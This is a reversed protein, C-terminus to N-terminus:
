AAKYNTPEADLVKQLWENSEKLNPKIGLKEQRSQIEPFAKTAHAFLIGYELMAPPYASDNALSMLIKQSNRSDASDVDLYLMADSLLQKSTPKIIPQTPVVAQAAQPTKDVNSQRNNVFLIFGIGFIVVVTAVVGLIIKFSPKSNEEDQKIHEIAVRMEAVSNYRKNQQKEVAKQIIKKVDGRKVDKMPFDKRLNAALIDQDTGSFPLHGTMLQYLLVGMAYIDTTYNHSKVDGLVLEPAAYNVKGMFVGTATLGKDQSGLTVIQKCIGFDILKIKKDFTIMINSPDIDRHIIGKDHLTMLGSLVAKMIRVSAKVKQNQYQNYLEAAFPIQMGHKDTTIGNLVDELTVGILLEMVVHYHVRGSPKDISPTVAEVFGYMRILNDHEVQIEAERRAREVVREPINEYIAKIAVPTREGTRQNVRFGKFVRGMGGEGLPTSDVDYEYYIGARLEAEGQLRIINM